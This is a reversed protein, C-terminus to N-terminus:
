QLTIPEILSPDNNKVNGVRASVPWCVMDDSPYPALLAKLHAPDAPEEGLWAAWAKPKLVVPMRNHLKACLENPTTTAITFSRIREGEPSRWTEWLGAMAMLGGGKLGIAYPQKGTSTKAELRDFSQEWFRRYDELWDAAHKLPGADLQCPRWQAERSRTVLGARELVKLHKCIAPLSMKFPQALETVSAEGSTLRALIARRTPDSLASFTIGLRDPLM